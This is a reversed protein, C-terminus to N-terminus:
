VAHELAMFRQLTASAQIDEHGGGVHAPAATLARDAPARGTSAYATAGKEESEMNIVPRSHRRPDSPTPPTPSTPPASARPPQAPAPSPQKTEAPQPSPQPTQGAPTSPAPELQPASPAPPPTAPEPQPAPPPPAAQARRRPLKLSLRPRRFHPLRLHPRSLRFRKPSPPPPQPPEAGAIRAASKLYEEDRWRPVSKAKPSPQPSPPRGQFPGVPEGAALKALELYEKDKADLKDALAM